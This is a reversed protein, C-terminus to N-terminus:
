HNSRPGGVWPGRTAEARPASLQLRSGRPPERPLRGMWTTRECGRKERERQERFLPPFFLRRCPNLYFIALVWFFKFSGRRLSVGHEELASARRGASRPASSEALSHSDHNGVFGVPHSAPLRLPPSGPGPTHGRGCAKGRPTSGGQGLEPHGSRPEEASLIGPTRLALQVPDPGPSAPTM